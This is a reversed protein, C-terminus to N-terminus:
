KKSCFTRAIAGPYEMSIGTGELSTSGTEWIRVCEASLTLLDKRSGFMDVMYKETGQITGELIFTNGQITTFIEKGVKGHFYFLFNPVPGQQEDRPGEEISGSSPYPLWSAFVKYGNQIEEVRQLRGALQVTQGKRTDANTLIQNFQDLSKVGSGKPEVPMMAPTQFESCGSLLLLGGFFALSIVQVNM